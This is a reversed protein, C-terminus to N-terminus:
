VIKMTSGRHKTQQNKRSQWTLFCKVYHMSKSCCFNYESIFYFNLEITRKVFRKQQFVLDSLCKIAYWIFTRNRLKTKIKKQLFLLCYFISLNLINLENLLFFKYESSSSLFIALITSNPIILFIFDMNTLDSKISICNIKLPKLFCIFRTTLPPKSYYLSCPNWM